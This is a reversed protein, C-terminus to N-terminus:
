VALLHRGLPHLVQDAGGPARWALAGREVPGRVRLLHPAREPRCRERLGRVRGSRLGAQTRAAMEDPGPSVTRAGSSVTGSARDPGDRLGWGSSPSIRGFVFSQNTKGGLRRPAM